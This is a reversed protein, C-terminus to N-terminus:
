EDTKINETNINDKKACTACLRTRNNAIAEEVTGYYVTDSNNIHQCEEHTHYVKGFQSYYVTGSIQQEAAIQEEESIPNYDISTLGGIVLAIVAAVAAITKTKKDLKKNDKLILVLYPLFAIICVIVGMNNWLFFKVKNKKSAPDIHNAKKWLQSGIIVFVLDVVLTIIIFTLTSMFTISLKGVLMLIGVLECAIALVWCVVAGVRLGSANGVPKAPKKTTKKATTEAEEKKPAPVVKKEKAEAM